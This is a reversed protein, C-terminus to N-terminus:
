VYGNYKINENKFLEFKLVIITNFHLTFNSYIYFILFYNNYEILNYIIFFHPIRRM